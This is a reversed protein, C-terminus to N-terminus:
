IVSHDDKILEKYDVFDAVIYKVGESDMITYNYPDYCGSEWAELVEDETMTFEPTEFCEQKFTITYKPEPLTEIDHKKCFNKFEQEKM